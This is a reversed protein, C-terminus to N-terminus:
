IHTIYLCVWTLRHVARETISCIRSRNQVNMLVSTVGGKEKLYDLFNGNDSFYGIKAPGKRPWEVRLRTRWASKLNLFLLLFIRSRMLAGRTKRTDEKVIHKGRGVICYRHLTHSYCKKDDRRRQVLHKPPPPQKQKHSYRSYLIHLLNQRKREAISYRAMLV